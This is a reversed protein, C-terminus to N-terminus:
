TPERRVQISRSSHPLGQGSRHQRTFYSCANGIEAEDAAMERRRMATLISIAKCSTTAFPRVYGGRM